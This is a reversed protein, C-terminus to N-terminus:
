LYFHSWKNWKFLIYFVMCGEIILSIIILQKQNLFLNTISNPYRDYISENSLWYYDLISENYRNM